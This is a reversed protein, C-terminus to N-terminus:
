AAAGTRTAGAIRAFLRATAERNAITEPAAPTLAGIRGADVHGQWADPLAGADQPGPTAFRALPIAARALQNEPM